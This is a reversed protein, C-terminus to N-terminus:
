LNALKVGSDSCKNFVTVYTVHCLLHALFNDQHLLHYKMCFSCKRMNEQLDRAEPAKIKPIITMASLLSM